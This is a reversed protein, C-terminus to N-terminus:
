VSEGLSCCGCVISRTERGTQWRCLRVSISSTTQYEKSAAGWFRAGESSPVLSVRHRNVCAYVRASKAGCLGGTRWRSVLTPGTLSNRRRVHPASIDPESTCSSQHPLSSQRSEAALSLCSTAGRLLRSLCLSALRSGAACLQLVGAQRTHPKSSETRNTNNM